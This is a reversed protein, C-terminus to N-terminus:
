QYPPVLRLLFKMSKSDIKRPLGRGPDFSSMHLMRRHSWTAAMSAEFLLCTLLPQWAWLGDNWSVSSSKIPIIGYSIPQDIPIEVMTFSLERNYLISYAGFSDEVLRPLGCYSSWTFVAFLFEDSKADWCTSWSGGPGLEPLSAVQWDDCQPKQKGFCFWLSAVPHFRDPYFDTVFYLQESYNRFESFLVQRLRSSLGLHDM